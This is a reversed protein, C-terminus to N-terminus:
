DPHQTDWYVLHTLQDPPHPAGDSHTRVITDLVLSDSQTANIPSTRSPNRLGLLTPWDHHRYEIHQTHLHLFALYTRCIAFPGVFRSATRASGHRQALLTGQHMFCLTLKLVFFNATLEGAIGGLALSGQFASFETISFPSTKCLGRAQLALIYAACFLDTNEVIWHTLKLAELQRGRTLNPHSTLALTPM